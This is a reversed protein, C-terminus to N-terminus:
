SWLEQILARAAQRGGAMAAVVTAPGTVLDGAAHLGRALRGDDQPKFGALGLGQAWDAAATEQGLALIVSAAPIIRESGAQPAFVVRGDPGPQGPATAQCRLGTVGQADGEVAV